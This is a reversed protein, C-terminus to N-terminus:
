GRAVVGKLALQKRVRALERMLRAEESRLAAVKASEPTSGWVHLLNSARAAFNTATRPGNFTVARDGVTVTDDQSSISVTGADNVYVRSRTPHLKWGLDKAKTLPTKKTKM